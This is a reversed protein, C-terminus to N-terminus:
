TRGAQGTIRPPVIRPSRDPRRAVKRNYLYLGLFSLLVLGLAILIGLLNPYSSNAFFVKTLWNGLVTGVFVALLPIGFVKLTAGIRSVPVEVEVTQGPEIGPVTPLEVRMKRDGASACMGCRECAMHEGLEVVARGGRIEVVKGHEIM